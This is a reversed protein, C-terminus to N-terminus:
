LNGGFTTSYTNQKSVDGIRWLIIVAKPAKVGNVKYFLFLCDDLLPLLASAKFMTCVSEPKKFIHLCAVILIAQTYHRIYHITFLIKTQTLSSEMTALVHEM